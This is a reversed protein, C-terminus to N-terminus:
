SDQGNKIAYDNEWNHAFDYRNAIFTGDMSEVAEFDVLANSGPGSKIVNELSHSFRNGMGDSIFLNGVHQQVTNDSLFLFVTKEQTDMVTFFDTMKYRPPMRAKAFDKFGSAARAVHVRVEETNRAEAIFM